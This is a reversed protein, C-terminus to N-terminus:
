NSVVLVATKPGAFTNNIKVDPTLVQKAILSQEEDPELGGCIKDRHTTNSMYLAFRGTQNFYINCAEDAKSNNGVYHQSYIYSIATKNSNFSQNWDNVQQMSATNLLDLKYSGSKTNNQPSHAMLMGVAALLIMSATLADMSFYFGKMRAM